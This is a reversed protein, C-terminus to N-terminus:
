AAGMRDIMAEFIELDAEGCEGSKRIDEWILKQALTLYGRVIATIWQGAQERTVAVPVVKLPPHELLHKAADLQSARAFGLVIEDRKLKESMPADPSLPPLEAVPNYREKLTAAIPAEPAPQNAAAQEMEQKRISDGLNVPMIPKESQAGNV